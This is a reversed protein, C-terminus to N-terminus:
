TGRVSKGARTSRSRMKKLLAALAKKEAPSIGSTALQLDQVHLPFVDAILKRGSATIEALIVRQDQDLRTRCMLGRKELKNVTYNTSAGTVLIRQSLQGLPIPGKHYLVELVAFETMALGYGAMRPRVWDDISKLARAMSIFFLLTAARDLEDKTRRSGPRGSGPPM